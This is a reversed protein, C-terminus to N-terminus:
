RLNSLWRSFGGNYKDQENFAENVFNLRKNVIIEFIQETIPLTATGRYNGTNLRYGSKFVATRLGETWSKPVDQLQIIYNLM